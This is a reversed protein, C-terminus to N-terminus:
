NKTQADHVSNRIKSSCLCGWGGGLAHLLSENSIMNEPDRLPAIKAQAMTSPHQPPVELTRSCSDARSFSQANCLCGRNLVFNNMSLTLFGFMLIKGLQMTCQLKNSLPNSKIKLKLQADAQQSSVECLMTFHILLDYIIDNNDYVHTDYIICM